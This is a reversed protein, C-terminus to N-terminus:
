PTPIEISWGLVAEVYDDGFIEAFVTRTLAGLEGTTWVNSCIQQPASVANYTVWQRTATGGSSLAFSAPHYVDLSDEPSILAPLGGVPGSHNHSLVVCDISSTDVNLQHLSSQLLPASRGTDFLISREHGEIFCSFGWDTTLGPAFRYNAYVITLRCVSAEDQTQAVAYLGAFVLVATLMALVLRSKM